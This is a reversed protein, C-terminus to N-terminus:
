SNTDADLYAAHRHITLDRHTALSDFKEYSAHSTRRARRPDFLFEIAHGADLGRHVVRGLLGSHEHWVAGSDRIRDRRDLRGSVGGRERSRGHALPRIGLLGGLGVTLHGAKAPSQQDGRYQSSWDDRHRHNGRQLERIPLPEGEGEGRRDCHPARPREM